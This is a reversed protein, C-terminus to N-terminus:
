AAIARALRRWSGPSECFGPSVAPGVAQLRASACRACRGGAPAERNRPCSRMRRISAPSSLRQVCSRRRPRGRCLVFGRQASKVCDSHHSPKAKRSPILGPRVLVPDHDARRAVFRCGYGCEAGRLRLRCGFSQRLRRAGSGPTVGTSLCSQTSEPAGRDDESPGLARRLVFSFAIVARVPM